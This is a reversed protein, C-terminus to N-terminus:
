PGRNRFFYPVPFIANKFLGDEATVHPVQVTSVIAGDVRLTIVRNTRGAVPDGCRVVCYRWGNGVQVSDWRAGELFLGRIYCGDEPQKSLESLSERLM